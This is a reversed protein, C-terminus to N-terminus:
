WQCSFMWTDGTLQRRSNEDSCQQHHPLEARIQPYHGLEHQGRGGINDSGKDPVEGGQEAMCPNGKRFGKQSQTRSHDEGKCNCEQHVLEPHYPFGDIRQQDEGVTAMAGSSTNHSPYPIRGLTTSMTMVQKKGMVMPRSLPNAEASGSKIWIIRAMPAELHCIKRWTFSGEEASCNKEPSRM